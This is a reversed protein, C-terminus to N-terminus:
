LNKVRGMQLLFESPSRSLRSRIESRVTQMADDRKNTIHRGFSVNDLVITKESGILTVIDDDDVRCDTIQNLTSSDMNRIVTEIWRKTSPVIENTIWISWSTKCKPCFKPRTTSTWVHNCCHFPSVPFNCLNNYTCDDDVSSSQGMQVQSGDDIGNCFELTIPNCSSKDEKGM